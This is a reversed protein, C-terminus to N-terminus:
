FQCTIRAYFTRPIESSGTELHEPKFLNQGVISFEFSRFAWALRADFTFYSPVVKTNILVSPSLADVYRGAVDFSLEDSLDMISQIVVMNKPDISEFAESIPLVRDNVAWINRNFYTYGGRLRWSKTARYNGNFEFGWSEARQDNTLIIPFQSSTSSDLSRLDNYHNYFTAFSLTLNELPRIRYGLEYAIVKESKFKSDTVTVDADFRSPTRVARSVSGWITNRKGSTWGLRVCPQVEFGTYVNNSFKSGLTLKVKEHALAIEDQGFLSYLPMVRSLPNIVVPFRDQQYRYGVGYLLSHKKGLPIRHQIDLDYTYISYAFPSVSNPTTRWIRDYYARIRLDSRDSFLHKFRALM